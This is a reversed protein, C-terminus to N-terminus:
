LTDIIDLFSCNGHLISWNVVEGSCYDDWNIFYIRETEIGMFVDNSCGLSGLEIMDEHADAHRYRYIPFLESGYISGVETMGTIMKTSVETLYTYLSKPLNSLGSADPSVPPPLNPYRDRVSKM